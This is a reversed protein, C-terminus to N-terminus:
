SARIHPSTQPAPLGALWGAEVAVLEKGRVWAQGHSNLAQEYAWRTVSLSATLDCVMGSGQLAGALWAGSRDNRELWRELHPQAALHDTKQSNCTGDALVFNHGLDIPYRAWPVFHDVHVRSARLEKACYFCRGQQLERLPELLGALSTREAGFLFEALDADGGLFELNVRRVYRLWAGRVMDTILGHFRRFCYAVGPRLEIRDGRGANPYLFDLPRRGVIQLKWLPMKRVVGDVKRVIPAWAGHHRCLRPLSDGHAERARLLLGLIEARQGTNQKLVAGASGSRGRPQYPVVQRWYRHVFKEAIAHTPLPLASGSEDGHEVALDALALLLAYKYSATFVGEALLRQLLALFRVQEDATPPGPPTM